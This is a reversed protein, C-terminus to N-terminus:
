GPEQGPNHGGPAVGPVDGATGGSLGAVPEPAGRVEEAVGAGPSGRGGGIDQAVELKPIEWQVMSAVSELDSALRQSAKRPHFLRWRPWRQEVRLAVRVDSLVGAHEAVLGGTAQSDRASAWYEEGEYNVAVRATPGTLAGRLLWVGIVLPSLVVGLPVQMWEIHRVEQEAEVAGEFFATDRLAGPRDWFNRHVQYGADELLNAVLAGLQAPHGIRGEWRWRVRGTSSM